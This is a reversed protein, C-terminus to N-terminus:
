YSLSKDLLDIINKSKSTVESQLSITKNTLKNFLKAETVNWIADIIQRIPLGIKIEGTKHM